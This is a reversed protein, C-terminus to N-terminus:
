LKGSYSSIFDPCSKYFHGLKGCCFCTPNKRYCIAESHGNMGCFQCWIGSFNRRLVPDSSWPGRPSQGTDKKDLMTVGPNSGLPVEKGVAQAVSFIANGKEGENGNNRLNKLKQKKDEMEAVSVIDAWTIRSGAKVIQKTEERKEINRAFWRPVTDILVQKLQKAREYQDHPFARYALKELRMCYLKFSEGNKMTANSLEARRIRVKGVQASKHWLQLESKMAPYKLLPGGLAEYAEKVEGVLFRGLERCRDKENGEFKLSFYREFDKLFDKFSGKCDEDYPEPMVVDKPFYRSKDRKLVYASSSSNSDSSDKGPSDTMELNAFSKLKGKRHRSKRTRASRVRSGDSSSSDSRISVKQVPSSRCGRRGRHKPSQSIDSIYEGRFFDGNYCPRPIGNDKAPSFIAEHSVVNDKKLLEYNEATAWYPCNALQKLANGWTVYKFNCLDKCVGPIKFVDESRSLLMSFHLGASGYLSTRVDKNANWSPNFLEYLGDIMVLLTELDDAHMITGALFDARVSTNKFQRLLTMVECYSTAASAAGELDPLGAMQEPALM